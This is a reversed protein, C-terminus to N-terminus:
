FLFSPVISNKNWAKPGNFGYESESKVWKDFTTYGWEIQQNEQLWKTTVDPICIKQPAASYGATKDDKQLLMINNVDNESLVSKVWINIENPDVSIKYSYDNNYYEFKAKPWSVRYTAVPASVGPQGVNVPTASANQGLMAHAELDQSGVYIPLTGGAARLTIVADVIPQGNVISKLDYNLDFVVDNFDFDLTNGLDECMIRCPLGDPTVAYELGSVKFIWNSFYGDAELKLGSSVKECEYDIGLYTGEYTNGDSAVFKLHVLQYNSFYGSEDDGSPHCAFAETGSCHVYNIRQYNDGDDLGSAEWATPNSLSVSYTQGANFNNIHDWQEIHEKQQETYGFPLCMLHDMYYNTTIGEAPRMFTGNPYDANGNADVRDVDKSINEIFYDSCHLSVPEASKLGTPLSYTTKSNQFDNKNYTRFFESVFLIEAKTVNGNPRNFLNQAEPLTHDVWYENGGPIVLNMDWMTKIDVICVGPDDARTGMTLDKEITVPSFGWTHNPDIRGYRDEFNKAYQRKVATEHITAEDFGM